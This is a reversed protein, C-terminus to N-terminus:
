PLVELQLYSCVYTTMHGKVNLYVCVSISRQHITSINNHANNTTQQDMTPNHTPTPKLKHCMNMSHIPLWNKSGLYGSKENLAHGQWPYPRSGKTHQSTGQTTTQQHMSGNHTLNLKTKHCMNMRHIPLWNKSGPYGNKKVQTIV